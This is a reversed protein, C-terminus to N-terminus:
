FRFLRNVKVIFSRNNLAPFRPTLTDREENYVVFLESGPGTNGACGCTPAVRRQQGLQVAAARQRVDAADDHLHRALRGPPHHVDGEVLDCGTSRLLDARGLAAHTVPVRGRAVSSRRRTATTSRATSSRCTRRRGRAAPGLQLRARVNDFDYGGVPLTVGAAIRFPAPLFEYTTPTAARQPPRREPVRARVRRDATARRSGAARRERHLGAVGPLHVQPHRQPRRPRPSFRAQAFNRRMDDRRVFGVEPNFNDGVGLRELQLGYRDGTYDLQARYSTDDGHPGLPQDSETRAWYTNITCTRSSPSRATSATPSTAGPAPQRRGIPRHRHRRHQEPAPHRAERAGGLLQHRARRAARRRGVPHQARRRQLPGVRGTLRGGADIPVERGPTSASAAATSSSRRTRRAPTSAASLSAASPSRARTRSSSSASRPFSCASGRSTSRSSTPRSRRSTPTTRHLRRHPEAHRRVERRVRHRRAADNAVRPNANMDSSLSSTMYPKIDLASTSRRRRSASAAHAAYRRRSCARRGAARAAGAILFSLENKWRNARSANFGWIQSPARSIASRSSRASRGRGDLRRRLPRDQPGLGPELGRNFQRENIVQGDARGGLANVTFSVANRRDYFTDFIFAVNDNGSWIIGNDRRMENAVLRDPQSDWCASRCTSTTTTSPSGSRPRRPRRRATTATRDPHLRDDARRRRYLDEDLAGDIRLPADIRVARVTTAGNGDRTMVTIPDDDANISRSFLVLAIACLGILRM